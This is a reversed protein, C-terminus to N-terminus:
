GPHLLGLMTAWSCLPRCSPVPSRPPTTGLPWSTKWLSPTSLHGVRCFSSVEISHGTAGPSTQPAEWTGTRRWGRGIAGAGRGVQEPAGVTRTDASHSLMGLPHDCLLLHRQMDNGGSPAGYGPRRSGSCASGSTDLIRTGPVPGRPVCLPLPRSCLGIDLGLCSLYRSDGAPAALLRPTNLHWVLYWVHVCLFVHRHVCMFVWVCMFVSTCVHQTGWAWPCGGCM